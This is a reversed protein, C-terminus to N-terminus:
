HKSYSTSQLCSCSHEGIEAVLMRAGSACTRGTSMRNTELTSNLRRLLDLELYLIQLAAVVGDRLLKHDIPGPAPQMRRHEAADCLLHTALQAPARAQMAMMMCASSDSLQM